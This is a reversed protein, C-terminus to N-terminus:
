KLLGNQFAWEFNSRLAPNAKVAAQVAARQAGGSTTLIPVMSPKINQDFAASQQTYAKENGAQYIPTLFQTKVHSLDLNNLQTNLGSVMATQPKDYTPVAEDITARSSDTGGSGLAKGQMSVYTAHLKQYEAAEPSIKTSVGEPLVGIAAGGIGKKNALDMMQTLAQRSQQYNADATSLGSYSDSMLKSPAGQSADTATTMGLPPAAAFAGGQPQAPSGQAGPQGFVGGPGNEHLAIGASIAHRVLPNSLDIQQNPQLGLRQSVDQIYAPTNNASPPAWKSIVGALTNVGQKGYNQLNTDMSDLGAQMTPYTALKGGPMMAGPNNARIPAPQAGGNAASAVNAVTQQVMGGKGGNANPDWTPTLQYGATGAAKAGSSATMAATGGAVPVMQWNGNQDKQATYGEPVQPLQEQRGDAYTLYGGPRGSVPPINNTKAISQQLIQHGLTSNPDIGAARMTKQLDTPSYQAAANEFLKGPDTMLGMAVLGGPMNGFPSNPAASQGGQPPMAGQAAGQPMQPAAQMPPAGGGGPPGGAGMSVPMSQVGPGSGGPPMGGADMPPPASGDQPGGQPSGQPQGGLYQQALGMLMRKQQLGYQLQQLQANQLQQSMGLQKSNNYAQLGQLGGMGIAQTGSTLGRNNALIGLGAALLGDAAPQSQSSQAWNTFNDLLGM